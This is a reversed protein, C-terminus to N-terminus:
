ELRAKSLIGEVERWGALTQKGLSRWFEVAGTETKMIAGRKILQRILDIDGEGRYARLWTELVVKTADAGFELLLLASEPCGTTELPTSRQARPMSSRINPNAGSELLLRMAKVNRVRSAKTLPTDGITKSADADAGNQLLVKLIAVASDHDKKEAALHLATFNSSIRSTAPVGQDLVVRVAETTGYTVAAGLIQARSWSGRQLKKTRAADHALLRALSATNNREIVNRFIQERRRQWDPVGGPLTDVALSYLKATLVGHLCHCTRSLSSIDHLKLLNESITLLLEAPLFLLELRHPQHM